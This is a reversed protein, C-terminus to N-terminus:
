AVLVNGPTVVGRKGGNCFNVILLHCKSLGSSGENIIKSQFENTLKCQILSKHYDTLDVFNLKNRSPYMANNITLLSRENFCFHSPPSITYLSPKLLTIRFCYSASYTTHFQSVFISFIWDEKSNIFIRHGWNNIWQILRLHPIFFSISVVIWNTVCEMSRRRMRKRWGETDTYPLM